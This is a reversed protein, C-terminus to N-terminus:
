APWLPGAFTPAANTSSPSRHLFCSAPPAAVNCNPNTLSGTYDIKSVWIGSATFSRAPEPVVNGQDHNYHIDFYNGWPDVVRDLLWIAGQVRSRELARLVSDRRGEHRSPVANRHAHHHQLRPEATYNGPADPAEFLKKGDLCIGDSRGDPNTSPTLSDLMVPRGYGDQQRTRPCRTIMSSGTLNWGQGAIGDGGQSNYVLALNPAMGAIGPPISIPVTYTAAGSPSVSFQGTLVGNFPAGVPPGAAKTPNPPPVSDLNVKRGDPLTADHTGDGLTTVPLQNSSPTATM